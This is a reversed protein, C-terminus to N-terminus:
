IERMFPNIEINDKSNARLRPVVIVTSFLQLIVPQEIDPPLIVQQLTDAPSFGQQVEFYEQLLDSNSPVYWGATWTLIALCVVTYTEPSIVKM